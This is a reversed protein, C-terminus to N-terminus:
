RASAPLALRSETGAAPRLRDSKARRGSRTTPKRSRRRARCAKATESRATSARGDAERAAEIAAEIQLVSRVHDVVRQLRDATIDQVYIDATDGIEHGMIRAIARTDGTADAVTRFTRRLSYFGHNPVGTLECLKFFGNAVTDKQGDLVLRQGQRTVFVTGDDPRRGGWAKPYKVKALEAITEPWLPVRRRVGTKGRLHDVWGNRIAGWNLEALDTNGFGGNLALLIQARM